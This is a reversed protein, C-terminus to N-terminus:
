DMNKTPPIVWSHSMWRWQENPMMQTCAYRSRPPELPSDSIVELQTESIWNLLLPKGHQNFCQINRQPPNAFELILKPPNETIVPDFPTITSVPFVHTNVKLKFADMDAYAESMPFRMLARLDSSHGVAGSNQAIGVYGMKQVLNALAESYEGYPYSFLKMQNTHEGLEAKLRRQATTIEKTIRKQWTEDSEGPQQVLKHHTKSHNAFEAGYQQMERMQEWTMSSQYGKDISDTNVFVTMPWGRQKFRPFAETYVSVWADDITFVVTKNPIPTRNKLASVLQSLSWVNFNNQELYNLQADFQALRINTSPLEDKGFHHYILIVASDSYEVPAPDSTTQSSSTANSPLFFSLIILILLTSIGSLFLISRSTIVSNSKQTASM